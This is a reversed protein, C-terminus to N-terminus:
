KSDPASPDVFRGVQKATSAAVANEMAAELSAQVAVLAAPRLRLITETIEALRDGPLGAMVFPEWVYEDVLAVFRDAIAKADVALLEHQDLVAQLPVGAAVLEAGVSMLRPSIVRYDRGQPELLGLSVARELLDPRQVIEPFIGELSARTVTESSENNWPATLAEEFNLVDSVSRGDEWANLLDNIAALSFGRAQLRDIYRLRALHGEGYYGVRGAMRPAPLLGRTQYARINRTTTEALRALEDIKLENPAKTGSEAM